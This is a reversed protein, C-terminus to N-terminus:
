ATVASGVPFGDHLRGDLMRGALKKGIEAFSAPRIGPTVDTKLGQPGNIVRAGFYSQKGAITAKSWAARQEDNTVQEFAIKEGWQKFFFPVDAAQCQDRLSRAWDQHMPRANPGSEGGAIVWDVKFGQQMHYKYDDPEPDNRPTAVGTVNRMQLYSDPLPVSQLDIPGLLPECSLFLVPSLARCKLLETIQKDAHEQLSVSTGLWVNHRVSTYSEIDHAPGDCRSEWMRSINEPRKTLMLWDLHPTADILEFLRYRIDSLKLDPCDDSCGADGPCSCCRLRYGDSNIIPGDWDEFVDALSACFVRHREGVDAAKRNWVLPKKWNAASTVVRTGHLGWQAVHRRTDFDAEAYCHKCGEHVKSCGIWPNFTHHTWEIKSDQGMM